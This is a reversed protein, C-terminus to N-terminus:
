TITLSLVSHALSYLAQVEIFLRLRQLRPQRVDGTLGDVVRLINDLCCSRVRQNLCIGSADLELGRVVRLQWEAVLQYPLEPFANGRRGLVSLRQARRAVMLLARRKISPSEKISLVSCDGDHFVYLIKVGRAGLSLKNAGCPVQKAVLLQWPYQALPSIPEGKCSCVDCDTFQDYFCNIFRLFLVAIVAAKDHLFADYTGVYRLQQFSKYKSRKWM